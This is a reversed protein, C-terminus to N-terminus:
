QFETAAKPVPSDFAKGCLLIWSFLSQFRKMEAKLSQFEEHRLPSDVLVLISVKSNWSVLLLFSSGCLLIWSFLSQFLAVVTLRTVVSVGCLLIWSFLSQFM